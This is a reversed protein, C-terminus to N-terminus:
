ASEFVNDFAGVVEELFSIGEAPDPIPQFVVSPPLDTTGAIFETTTSQVNEPLSPHSSHERSRSIRDTQNTLVGKTPAAVKAPEVPKAAISNFVRKFIGM